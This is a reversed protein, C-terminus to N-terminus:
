APRHKSTRNSNKEFRVRTQNENLKWIKRRIIREKKLIRKLVKRDLDVVMLTHQLEWPIVKVDRIYKKYKEVVPEFDIETECGGAIDTIKRKDAKYLWTNAMCLEKEDCLELLRRGVANRKGIGNGGHVGEFEKACKGVHGNFDGLSFIIESPSRFDWGSAM